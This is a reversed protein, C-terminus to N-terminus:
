VENISFSFKDAAKLLDANGVETGVSDKLFTLIDTTTVPIETTFPM